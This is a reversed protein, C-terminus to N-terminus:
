FYRYNYLMLRVVLFYASYKLFYYLLGKNVDTLIMLKESSIDAM